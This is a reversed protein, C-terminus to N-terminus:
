GAHQEKEAQSLLAEVAQRAADFDLQEMARHLAAWRPDRAVTADALLRDHLELAEMDQDLLRAQLHRLLDRWQAPDAAATAQQAGAAPDPEPEPEIWGRAQLEPLVQQLTAPLRQLSEALPPWWPPVPDLTPVPQSLSAKVAREADAARAALQVAGVTAATGKLTHLQAALTADPTGDLRVQLEALTHPLSQAFSRLIRAYLLPDGGLRELAAPIDMGDMQSWDGGAQQPENAAPSEVAGRRDDPVGEAMPRVAHPAWHLLVRVLQDIAFPKGFHDNMGAALCAERDSAMANATMAVIPLRRLGLQQRIAQTAQLGDMVPMQMDMLVVDWGEPQARLGDLAAQGHEAVTVEAGERRLLDRAVQQNIANDEVLLIRMGALRRGGKPQPSVTAAAGDAAAKATRVAELLMSATVPKVLFVDLVSQRESPVQALVDRGNATVM